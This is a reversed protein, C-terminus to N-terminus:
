SFFFLGKPRPSQLMVLDPRDNLFNCLQHYFEAEYCDSFQKRLDSILWERKVKFLYMVATPLGGILPYMQLKLLEPNILIYEPYYDDLILFKYQCMLPINSVLEHRSHFIHERRVVADVLDEYTKFSLTDVCGLREIHYYLYQFFIVLDSFHFDNESWFNLLHNVRPPLSKSDSVQNLFDEDDLTTGCNEAPFQFLDWFDKEEIIKAVPEVVGKKDLNQNGSVQVTNITFKPPPLIAPKETTNSNLPVMSKQKPTEAGKQKVTQVKAPPKSEGKKSDKVGSKKGDISDLLEDGLLPVAKNSSLQSESVENLFNDFDSIPVNEKPAVNAYTKVQDLFNEEILIAENQAAPKVNEDLSVDSIVPITPDYKGILSKPKESEKKTESIKSPRKPGEAVKPKVTEVKATPKSEENKSKKVESPKPLEEIKAPESDIVFNNLYNELRYVGSKTPGEKEFEAQKKALNRLKEETKEAEDEKAKAENEASKKSFAEAIQKDLIDFMDEELNKPEDNESDSAEVLDFNEIEEYEASNKGDEEDSDSLLSPKNKIDFNKKDTSIKAEKEKPDICVFQESDSESDSPKM